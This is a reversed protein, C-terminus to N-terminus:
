SSGSRVRAEEQQEVLRKLFDRTCLHHRIMLEQAHVGDRDRIAGAIALHEDITDEPQRVLGQQYTKQMYGFSHDMERIMENGSLRIIDAHFGRDVQVYRERERADLPFRFRDFRSSLGDLDPGCANEICLRLAMGELGARVEFLDVLDRNGYQKVFFGQRSRQEIFKEGALRNVADNLPTQSVGLMDSLEKKNIKQGPLLTGEVIMSRVKEYVLETLIRNEIRSM